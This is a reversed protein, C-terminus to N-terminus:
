QYYQLELIAGTDCNIDFNVHSTVTGVHSFLTVWTGWVLPPASYVISAAGSRVNISCLGPGMSKGHVEVNAVVNATTIVMGDILPVVTKASDSAYAGGPALCNVISLLVALLGGPKSIQSVCVIPM